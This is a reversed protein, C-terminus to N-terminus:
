LERGDLHNDEERAPPAALVPKPVEVFLLLSGAAATLIALGYYPLGVWAGGLRMGLTFLGALLPQAYISSVVEVIGVLSFLRSRHEPDVYLSMLSKTLSGFGSGLAMLLLGVVFGALGPSAALALIGLVLVVYSVRAISLDRHHEDRARLRAPTTSRMSFKALWPLVVVAQLAQAVGYASQVYGTSALSMAYRKSIFQTMFQLTSYLVPTAGLCTILLLVLSRSKVISLSEKFRIAIHPARSKPNSEGEEPESGAEAEEHADKQEDHRRLTEPIFLFAIASLMLICITVWLPPWPGTREMMLSSLAPSILSGALGAVNLRMFAIAREDDTTADTTMSMLVGSTVANGGGVLAGASGFWILWLPFVDDFYLVAMTWLASLVMGLLSLSFVPKRGIKDAVLAWPLAAVCGVAADLATLVALVLALRQQIPDEKCLSEDVASAGADGYYYRRCLLDELIRTRPISAFGVGCSAVFLVVCLLNVVAARGRAQPVHVGALLPAREAARAAQGDSATTPLM